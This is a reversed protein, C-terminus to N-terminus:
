LYKFNCPRKHFGQDLEHWFNLRQSVHKNSALALTNLVKLSSKIARGEFNELLSCLNEHINKRIITRCAALNELELALNSQM